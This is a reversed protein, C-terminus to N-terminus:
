EASTECAIMLRNLPFAPARTYPSVATEHRLCGSKRIVRVGTKPIHSRCLLSLRHIFALSRSIAILRKLGPSPHNYLTIHYQLSTQIKQLRAKDHKWLIRQLQHQIENVYRFSQRQNPYYERNFIQDDLAKSTM